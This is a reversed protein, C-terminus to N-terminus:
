LTMKSDKAFVPTLNKVIRNVTHVPQINKLNNVMNGAGSTLTFKTRFPCFLIPFYQTRQADNYLPSLTM